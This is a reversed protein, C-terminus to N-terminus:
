PVIKGTGCEMFEYEGYGCEKEGGQALCWRSVELACQAKEGCPRNAICSTMRAAGVRRMAAKHTPAWSACSSLLVLLLGILVWGISSGVVVVAFRDAFSLKEEM